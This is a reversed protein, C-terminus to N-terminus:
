PGSEAAALFWADTLNEGGRPLPTTEVTVRFMDPRLVTATLTAPVRGAGGGSGAGSAVTVLIAMQGARLRLRRAVSAPPLEMQVAVARPCPDQRGCRPAASLPLALPLEGREAEATLWDALDSPEALHGALYTTSVAAPADNVAWALRLIGVPEGSRVGLAYAATESAPQRSVGYSMCTLDASMPDVSAGLGAIGEVSILYDAPSSRYLNGDPSRRVLQRSILYDVAALVEDTSVNHRRALASPRPLRWGPEHNVLTSAIREALVGAGAHSGPRAGNADARRDGPSGGPAIPWGSAGTM